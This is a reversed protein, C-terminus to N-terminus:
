AIKIIKNIKRQFLHWFRITAKISITHVLAKEILKVVQPVFRKSKELISSKVRKSIYSNIGKIEVIKWRKAGTRIQEILETIKKTKSRMIKVNWLAELIYKDIRECTVYRDRNINKEIQRILRRISKSNENRLVELIYEDLGKKKFYRENKAYYPMRLFIEIYYYSTSKRTKLIGISHL